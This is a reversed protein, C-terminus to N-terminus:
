GEYVGNIFDLSLSTILPPATLAQLQANPLRSNFYAIQRIHGNLFGAGTLRQGIAMRILGTPVAYTTDVIVAGGNRTLAADNLKIAYAVRQVAIATTGTIDLFGQSAGATTATASTSGATNNARLFINNSTSPSDDLALLEQTIVTNLALMASDVVFTGESANYWSSFNTGTMTAVDANRTVQSAVTPIYSTAFSGAEVQAGWIYCFDGTTSGNIGPFINFSDFPASAAPFTYVMQVRWWGNGVLAASATATGSLITVAGTAYTLRARQQATGQDIIGFESGTTNGQKVYFSFTYAAALVTLPRNLGDFSTGTATLTDATSTGDPSVTTNPTVSVAIKSWAVDNFQDSYTILNTRAEEILLGLPALTVPNYDFRPADIAATQILGNSGVFTATTSRTFTVRSDLSGSLLNLYLAAGSFPGGSRRSTLFTSALLGVALGNRVPIGFSVPHQDAQCVAHRWRRDPDRQCAV